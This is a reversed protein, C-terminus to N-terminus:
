EEVHEMGMELIHYVHEDDLAYFISKGERRFKVLKADKLIRLQHSVSSQSMNLLEAIDGVCLEDEFLVYLIRIRTSDGFVKFLEALEYLIEDPPPNNKLKKLIESEALSQEKEEAM